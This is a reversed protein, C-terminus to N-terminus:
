DVLLALLSIWDDIGQISCFLLGSSASAKQIMEDMNRM